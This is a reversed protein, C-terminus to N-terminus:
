DLRRVFVNAFEIRDGHHQLAIPGEAPVGLLQCNDIVTQGNLEVTLRDGRMTILFRNWRGVREDAKVKPTAAARVEAPM